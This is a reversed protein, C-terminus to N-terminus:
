EAPALALELPLNIKVSQSRPVVFSYGSDLPSRSFAMAGLYSVLYAESSRPHGVIPCSDVLAIAKLRAALAIAMALAAM